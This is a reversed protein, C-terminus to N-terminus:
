LYFIRSCTYINMPLVMRSSHHSLFCLLLSCCLSRSFPHSLIQFGLLHAANLYPCFVTALPFISLAPVPVNEPPPFCPSNKALQNEQRLLACLQEVSLTLRKLFSPTLSRPSFTSAESPFATALGPLYSKM